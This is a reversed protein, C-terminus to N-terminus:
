RSRLSAFHLSGQMEKARGLVETMEVSAFHLSGQIPVERQLLGFQKM